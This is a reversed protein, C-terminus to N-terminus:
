KNLDLIYSTYTYENKSSHIIMRSLFIKNGVKLVKPMPYKLLQKLTFEKKLFQEIPFSETVKGPKIFDEHLRLVGGVELIKPFSKINKSNITCNGNVILRNPLYRFVFDTSYHNLYCINNIILNGKIVLEKPFSCSIFCDDIILNGEIQLEQPFWEIITNNLELDGSSGNKIYEEMIRFSKRGEEELVEDLLGDYKTEKM